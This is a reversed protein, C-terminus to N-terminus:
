CMENDDIYLHERGELANHRKLYEVKLLTLELKEILSDFM